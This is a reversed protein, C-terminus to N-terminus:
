AGPMLNIHRSHRLALSERLLDTNRRIADRILRAGCGDHAVSCRKGEVQWRNMALFECHIKGAAVLRRVGTKQQHPLRFALEPHAPPKGSRHRIATIRVADLVLHELHHHRPDRRDRAPVLIGDVEVPQPMVRQHLDRDTATRDGARGQGRLGGDATQLIRRALRLRRPEGRSQDILGARCHLRAPLLDEVDVVRETGCMATLLQREPIGDRHARSQM